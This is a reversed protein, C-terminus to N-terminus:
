YIFIFIFFFIFYFLFILRVYVNYFNIQSIYDSLMFGPMHWNRTKLNQLQHSTISLMKIFNVPPCVWYGRIPLFPGTLHKTPGRSPNCKKGLATAKAYKVPTNM